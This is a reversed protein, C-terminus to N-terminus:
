GVSKRDAGIEGLVFMLQFLFNACKWSLSLMGLSVKVFGGYLMGDDSPIGQHFIVSFNLIRFLFKINSIVILSHYSRFHLYQYFGILAHVSYYLLEGNLMHVYSCSM